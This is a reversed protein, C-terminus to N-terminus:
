LEFWSVSSIKTTKNQGSVSGDSWRLCWAHYPSGETSSWLYGGLMNGGIINFSDDIVSKNNYATQLEGLSPLYCYRASGNITLQRSRCFGAAYSNGTGLAAIIKDTNSKGDYDLEAQRSSSINNLEPIDTGSRGWALDAGLFNGIVFSCNDSIVAVGVAKSNNSANWNDPVTLKGENDYIYVGNAIKASGQAMM